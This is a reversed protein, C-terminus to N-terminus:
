LSPYMDVIRSPHCEPCAHKVLQVPEVCNIENM